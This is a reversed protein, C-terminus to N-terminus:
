HQRRWDWPPVPNSDAWLGRKTKQAELEARQYAAKNLNGGSFHVYHWAMGNQLQNFGVDIGNVTIKGVTRGYRDINITDVHVNQGFVLNSLSAKSVAGYAQAKEPADIWALRVKREQYNVLVAVTDGDMVRVVRGEFSQPYAALAWLGFALFWALKKMM